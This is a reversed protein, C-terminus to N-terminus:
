DLGQGRFVWAARRAGRQALEVLLRTKGGGSEAELLVVGGHGARAQELQDDLLALEETRGVFAPDTLTRRRDTIGVVLEPEAIGQDLAAAIMTFDALVATASQYRDLPDKRLLRQIVEDLARPIVLGLSRLEPPQVTMHQRLVEGVTAAQFPPRGALCEFL